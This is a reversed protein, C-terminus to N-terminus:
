SAERALRCRVPESAPFVSAGNVYAVFRPRGTVRVEAGLSLASVLRLAREGRIRARYELGNSEVRFTFAPRGDRGYRLPSIGKVVGSVIM